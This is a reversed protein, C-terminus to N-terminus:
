ETWEIKVTAIYRENAEGSMFADEYSDFIRGLVVRDDSLAEKVINVWGSSKEPLMMLDADNNENPNSYFRGNAFYNCPREDIEYEILAIIPKDGKADFCIIRAKGGDRTCVPKGTKAAEIDFPSMSNPIEEEIYKLLSNCIEDENRAYRNDRLIESLRDLLYDRDEHNMKVKRIM